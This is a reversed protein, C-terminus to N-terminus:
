TPGKEGEGNKKGSKGFVGFAYWFATYWAPATFNGRAIQYIGAAVLGLFALGALDVGKGTVSKIRDDISGFLASVSTQLGTAGEAAQPAEVVNFLDAPRAADIAEFPASMRMLVSGTMPSVEISDVGKVSSLADRVSAFYVLDGKRSPVRLRLRGAMRHTIFADPIM